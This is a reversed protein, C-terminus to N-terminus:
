WAFKGSLTFSRRSWNRRAIARVVRSGTDALWARTWATLRGPRTERM